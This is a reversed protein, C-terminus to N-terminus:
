SGNPCCVVYAQVHMGSASSGNCEWGPGGAANSLAAPHSMPPPVVQFLYGPIYPNVGYLPPPPVAAGLYVGGGYANTVGGGGPSPLGLTQTCGGSVANYTSDTCYADATPSLSNFVTAPPINVNFTNGFTFWGPILVLGVSVFTGQDLGQQYHGPSAGAEMAGVKDTPSYKITCASASALAVTSNNVNNNAGYVIMDDFWNLGPAKSYPASVFVGTHSCNATDLGPASVCAKAILGTTSLAAGKGDQGHDVVVYTATGTTAGGPPSPTVDVLGGNEVEIAGTPSYKPVSTEYIPVAYTYMYGNTNALFSDPLGLDRVPLAGIVLAPTSVATGDPSPIITGSRGAAAFTGAAATCPTIVEHGYNPGGPSFTSPCPLRGHQTLFNALSQQIASMRQQSSAITAQAMWSRMLSIGAIIFLSSIVMVIAIEVLTFGSSSFKQIPDKERRM